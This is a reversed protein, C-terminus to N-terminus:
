PREADGLFFYTELGRDKWQWRPCNLNKLNPFKIISPNSSQFIKSNCCYNLNLDLVQFKLSKLMKVKLCIKLSLFIDYIQM